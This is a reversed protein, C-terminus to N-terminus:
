FIIEKKNCKKKQFLFFIEFTRFITIEMYEAITIITNNDNDNDFM